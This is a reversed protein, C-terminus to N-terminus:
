DLTHKRTVNIGADPNPKEIDSSEKNDTDGSPPESPPTQGPSEPTGTAAGFTSVEDVATPASMGVTSFVKVMLNGVWESPIIKETIWVIVFGIAALIAAVILFMVLAILCTIVLAFYIPFFFGYIFGRGVRVTEQDPEDKGLIDDFVDVYVNKRYYSLAAGLVGLIIMGILKIIM